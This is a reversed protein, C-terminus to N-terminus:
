DEKSEERAVAQWNAGDVLHQRLHELQLALQRETQRLDAIAVIRDQTQMPPVPLRLEGLAAKSVFPVYSGKAIDKIEAQANPHNLYWVLFEPRIRRRNPKLVHLGLAAIGRITTDVLAAPHRSGRSQFLVDGAALLYRDYKGGEGRLQLARDATLGSEADIDKIQVVVVDGGEEPYVKGRFPYGTTIEAVDRLRHWM